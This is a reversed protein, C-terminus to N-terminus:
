QRAEGTAQLQINVSSKAAGEQCATRQQKLSNLKSNLFHAATPMKALAAENRLENELVSIREDLQKLNDGGGAKNLSYNLLEGMGILRKALKDAAKSPVSYNLSRRGNNMNGGNNYNGNMGQRMASASAMMAEIHETSADVDSVKLQINFNESAGSCGFGRGWYQEPNEKATIKQNYMQAQTTGAMGILIIVATLRM